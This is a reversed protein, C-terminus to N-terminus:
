TSAVDGDVGAVESSSVLNWSQGYTSTSLLAM